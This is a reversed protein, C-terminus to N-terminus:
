ANGQNNVGAKSLLARDRRSRKIACQRCVRVNFGDRKYKYADVYSHGRPCHTKKQNGGKNPNKLRNKAKADALNEAQTGLFLHNPNVCGPNDCKHCVYIGEPIEGHKLMWSARHALTRPFHRHRFVGYGSPMREGMWLWCAEESLRAARAAFYGDLSEKGKFTM